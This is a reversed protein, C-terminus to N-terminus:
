ILFFFFFFVFILSESSKFIVLCKVQVNQDQILSFISDDRERPTLRFVGRIVDSYYGNGRSYLIIKGNKRACYLTMLWPYQWRHTRHKRRAMANSKEMTVTTEILFCKFITRRITMPGSVIIM